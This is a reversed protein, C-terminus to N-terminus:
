RRWMGWHAVVLQVAGRIDTAVPISKALRPKAPSVPAVYISSASSGSSGGAAGGRHCHYDGTERNAHCGNADLGGGHSLAAAPVLAIGVTVLVGATKM